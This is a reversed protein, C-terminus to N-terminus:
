SKWPEEDDELYDTWGDGEEMELDDDMLLAVEDLREVLEVKLAAMELAAQGFEKGRNLRGSCREEAEAESNVTVIGNIIPTEYERSATIFAEATTYAIIDHHNTAGAIVVGLAIICDYQASNALMSVAYPVEFSGPVRITEVDEAQVGGKDLTKLVNELLADVFRANYRAAVVAIRLGQGDVDIARPADSSM